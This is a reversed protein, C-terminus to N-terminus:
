YAVQVTGHDTQCPVTVRLTTLQHQSVGSICCVQVTISAIVRSPRNTLCLNYQDLFLLTIKLRPFVFPQHFINEITLFKYRQLIDQSFLILNRFM